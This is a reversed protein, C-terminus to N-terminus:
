QSSFALVPPFPTQPINGVVCGRDQDRWFPNNQAMVCKAEFTRDGVTMCITDGLEHRKGYRDTCYCDPWKVPGTRKQQGLNPNQQAAAIGGAAVSIVTASFMLLRQIRIRMHLLYCSLQFDGFSLASFPSDSFRLFTIGAGWVEGMSRRAKEWPAANMLRRPNPSPRHELRTSTVYDEVSGSFAAAM